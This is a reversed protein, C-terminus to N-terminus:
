HKEYIRSLKYTEIVCSGFYEVWRLSPKKTYVRGKTTFNGKGAFYLGTSLQKIRYAKEEAPLETHKGLFIKDGIIRTYYKTGDIAIKGCRCNTYVGKTDSPIVTGCNKCEYFKIPKFDM